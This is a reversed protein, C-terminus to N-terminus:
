LTLKIKQITIYTYKTVKILRMGYVLETKKNPIHLVLTTHSTGPVIAVDTLSEQLIPILELMAQAHRSYMLDRHNNPHNLHDNTYELGNLCSQIVDEWNGRAM